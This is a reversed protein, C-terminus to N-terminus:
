RATGQPMIAATMAVVPRGAFSDHMLALARTLPLMIVDHINIAIGCYAPVIMDVFGQFAKGGDRSRTERQDGRKRETRLRSPGAKARCYVDVGAAHMFLAVSPGCREHFRMCRFFRCAIYTGAVAFM